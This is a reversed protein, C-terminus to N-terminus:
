YGCVWFYGQAFFTSIGKNQISSHVIGQHGEHALRIVHEQLKAPKLIKNDLLILDNFTTLAHRVPYFTKLQEKNTFTVTEIAKKSLQVLPDNKTHEM